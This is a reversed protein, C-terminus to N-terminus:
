GINRKEIKYRNMKRLLTSKDIKLSDAMSQASEFLPINTLLFQKEYLEVHEKLGLNNDFAFTPEIEIIEPFINVLQKSTIRNSDCTAISAEIVNSLERINGPWRYAHLLSIADSTIRVDTNNRDNYVKLFYTILAQLDM